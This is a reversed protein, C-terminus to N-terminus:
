LNLRLRSILHGDADTKIVGDVWRAKARDVPIADTGDAANRWAGNVETSGDDNVRYYVPDEPSISSVDDDLRAWLEGAELVEPVHGRTRSYGADTVGDDAMIHRMVACGALEHKVVATSTAVTLTGLADTGDGAGAAAVEGATVKFDLGAIQGTLTLLTSGNETAVIASTPVTTDFWNKMADLLRAATASADSFSFNYHEVEGDLNLDGSVMLNYTEGNTITGGLTVTMVKAVADAEDPDTVRTKDGTTGYSRVVACGPRILPSAAASTTTSPTGIKADSETITFSEGGRLATITLVAGSSSAVMYRGLVANANIRAALGAAKTTTTGTAGENFTVAQAAEGSPKVSIAYEADSASSITITTVQKVEGSIPYNNCILGILLLGAKFARSSSYGGTFLSAM